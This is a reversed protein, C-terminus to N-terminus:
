RWDEADHPALRFERPWEPKSPPIVEVLPRPEMCSICVGLWTGDADQGAMARPLHGTGRCESVSQM